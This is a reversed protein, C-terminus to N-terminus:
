KWHYGSTKITGLERHMNLEDVQVIDPLAVIVEKEHQRQHDNLFSNVDINISRKQTRFRYFFKYPDFCRCVPNFSKIEKSCCLYIPSSKSISELKKFSLTTYCYLDGNFMHSSFESINEAKLREMLRFLEQCLMDKDERCDVSTQLTHVKLLDCIRKVIKTQM